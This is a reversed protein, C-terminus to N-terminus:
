QFSLVDPVAAEITKMVARVMGPQQRRRDALQPMM